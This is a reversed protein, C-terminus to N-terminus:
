MTVDGLSTSLGAFEVVMGIVTACGASVLRLKRCLTTLRFHCETYGLAACFDDDTAVAFHASPSQDV